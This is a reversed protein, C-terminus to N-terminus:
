DHTVCFVHVKAAGCTLFHDNKKLWVKCPVYKSNGLHISSSLIPGPPIQFIINKRTSGRNGPKPLASKGPGARQILLPVVMTFTQQNNSSPRKGEIKVIRVGTITRYRLIPTKLKCYTCVYNFYFTVNVTTVQVTWSLVM